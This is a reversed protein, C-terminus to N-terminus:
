EDVAAFAAEVISMADVGFHRYLDDRAGSQGFDDVGLSTVRAGYVSGFWALAHSAADHVTVMPTNRQGDHYLWGFADADGRKRAAVFREYLARASVVNIVDAAVGERWLIEAAELTEPILTGSACLMVRPADYLEPHQDQWSALRYAGNLVQQRLADVGIRAKAVEFPAQNIPRTSLRLYLPRGHERDFCHRVGELLFWELEGAYCPEAMMLKPLEIGVSATITSQHAGGEPALTIGSPTGAVIFKSGSYVAYIFSDLGRLVFPDYVTGIPVLPAGTLEYSLGAMGAMMFLNMESIGLEIHRGQQSRQWRLIRQAEGEYEAVNAHPTYVGMRNIWGGLNTSVSVDPSTTVMYQALEPIDAFRVLLRGFADQTSVNSPVGLDVRTPIDITPIAPLEPEDLRRSVEACLTGEPTDGDFEPWLDDEAIGFNTRLQEMQESSLLMSHNLPHGAIPLGWGKITYAFVVTPRSMDREVEDFISCMEELDHGGLNSIVGPLEEDPVQALVLALTNRDAENASLLRERLEAGSLRITAQYEENSMEDIRRRLTDGGPLAYLEQLKRGYKAELVRWGNQAFLKKLRAARIGPVVRDLSQRNLDVVWMVQGIGDLAEDLLAEWVNGEDLEADGVVAVFRREPVDVQHDRLYRQTLSAFLPAVIGLGVSGTSFDVREPDKTRSPYSQLGGYERLMTMYRKPLNGLLYQISHFIPSSHPKVAVRDGRKLFHFYLATMLTVTSASSAQHGGVKTGDHNPRVHNAHHIMNTALWLVRRQINELVRLTQPDLTHPKTPAQKGRKALTREM